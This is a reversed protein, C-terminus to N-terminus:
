RDDNRPEKPKPQASGAHDYHERTSPKADLLVALWQRMEALENALEKAQAAFGCEMAIDFLRENFIILRNVLAIEDQLCM